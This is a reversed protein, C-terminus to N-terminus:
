LKNYTLCNSYWFIGVLPDDQFQENFKMLEIAAKTYDDREEIHLKMFNGGRYYTDKAYEYTEEFVSV